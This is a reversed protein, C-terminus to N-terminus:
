NSYEQRGKKQFEEMEEWEMATQPPQKLETEDNVVGERHIEEGPLRLHGVNVKGDGVFRLLAVFDAIFRTHATPNMLHCPKMHHIVVPNEKDLLDIGFRYVIELYV